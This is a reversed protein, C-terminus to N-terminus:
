LNLMIPEPPPPANPDPITDQGAIQVRVNYVPEIKLVYRTYVPPHFGLYNIVEQTDLVRQGCPGSLVHGAPVNTLIAEYSGFPDALVQKKKQRFPWFRM